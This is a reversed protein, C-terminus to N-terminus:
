LAVQRPAAELLSGEHVRFHYVFVVGSLLMLLGIAGFTLQFSLGQLLAAVILPALANGIREILRYAGLVSESGLRGVEAACVQLVMTTQPAISLSQAAGLLIVMAAVAYIGPLLLPMLGAVGSLFLGAAVFYWRRAPDASWRLTLPIGLVMVLAYLMILRGAMAANSDLEPMYLPILYFCFGILIIKAPMAATLLFVVFKRNRFLAAVDARRLKRAALASRVPSLRAWMLWAAVAALLSALLLTGRYGIGEALIGGISPGCVSSVMIVSTFFALGRTRSHADTHDLVYGQSAVFLIGWAVGALARWFLFDYLSFAFAAGLHALVGMLAGAFLAQRRGIRESWGGVIPQSLVVILMFLMIPLGQAVHLSLGPLPTFLTATYAPIFSRSLDEAFLFLFFPARLLALKASGEESKTASGFRYHQRLSRLGVIGLRLAQAGEAHRRRWRAVVTQQLHTHAANIRLLAANIAGALAGLSHLTQADLHRDFKGSAAQATTALLDTLQLVTSRGAFFYVMELAVFFAVVLVVLVDLLNELLVSKVFSAKAGIHLFGHPKGLAELKLSLVYHGSVQQFAEAAQDRPKGPLRLQHAPATNASGRELALAPPSESFQRQFFEHLAPDLAGAQHLVTGSLGTIAIMGIEPNDKLMSRFVADVGPLEELRLDHALATGLLSGLSRGLVLAKSEIEPAVEREFAKLSFWSSAALAMLLVLLLLLMFRLTLQRLYNM